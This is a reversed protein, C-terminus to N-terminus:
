KNGQEPLQATGFWYDSLSHITSVYDTLNGPKSVYSNAGLAYSTEIDHQSESTSFIVIPIKGLTPDSKVARLVARGDKRPLNLDLIILDPTTTDSYQGIRQLYAMAEVGDPVTRVDSICNDHSLTDKTLDIDAQNDDVLLVQWGKSAM